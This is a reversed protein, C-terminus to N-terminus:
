HRMTVVCTTDRHLQSRCIGTFGTAHRAARTTRNFEAQRQWCSTFHPAPVRLLGDPKLVNKLRLQLTATDVPMYIAALLPVRSFQVGM